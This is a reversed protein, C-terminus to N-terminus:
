MSPPKAENHCLRNADGKGSDVCPNFKVAKRATPYLWIGSRTLALHASRHPGGWSQGYVESACDEM